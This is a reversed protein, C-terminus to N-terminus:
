FKPKLIYGTPYDVITLRADSDGSLHLSLKKQVGPVTLGQNVASNALELLQTESVDLAPMTSTGFFLKICKFHWGSEKEDIFSPDKISKGCYLCKM